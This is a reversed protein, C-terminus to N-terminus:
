KLEVSRCIPEINELDSWIMLKILDAGTTNLAFGSVEVVTGRSLSGTYSVPSVALLEKGSYSAALVKVNNATIGSKNIIFEAKDLRGNADNATNLVIFDELEIIEAAGFKDLMVDARAPEAKIAKYFDKYTSISFNDVYMAKNDTGAYQIRVDNPIAYSLERSEALTYTGDSNVIYTRTDYKSNANSVTDVVFVFHTWDIADKSFVYLSVNESGSNGRIRLEPSNTTADKKFDAEIVLYRDTKNTVLCTAVDSISTVPPKENILDIKAIGNSNEDTLSALNNANNQMFLKTGLNAHLGNDGEFDWNYHTIIGESVNAAGSNIASIASASDTFETGILSSALKTKASYSLNTYADSIDAIGYKDYTKVIEDVDKATQAANLADSFDKYAKIAFNDIYMKKDANDAHATNMNIRFTSYSCPSITTTTTAAGERCVVVQHKDESNLKNDVIIIFRTWNDIAARTLDKVNFTTSGDRLAFKPYGGTSPVADKKFDFEYVVYRLEANSDLTAKIAPTSLVMASDDAQLTMLGYGDAHREVSIIANDGSSSESDKTFDAGNVSDQTNDSFDFNYIEIGSDDLVNTNYNDAFVSVSSFMSLLVTVMLCVSLLKKATKKM